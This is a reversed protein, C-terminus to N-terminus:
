ICTMCYGVFMKYVLHAHMMVLLMAEVGLGARQLVNGHMSGPGERKIVPLLKAGVWKM